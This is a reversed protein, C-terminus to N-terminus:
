NQWSIIKYTGNAGKKATAKVTQRAKPENKGAAYGTSTIEFKDGLPRVEVSFSASDLKTYTEGKYEGNKNLEWLGKTIGAEAAHFASVAMKNLVAQKYQGALTNLIGAFVIWM